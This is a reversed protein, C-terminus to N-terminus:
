FQVTYVCEERDFKLIQQKNQPSNQQSNQPSNQPSNQLFYRRMVFEKSTNKIKMSNESFKEFGTM